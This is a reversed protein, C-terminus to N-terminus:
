QHRLADILARVFLPDEEGIPNNNQAFILLGNEDVLEVSVFVFGFDNGGASFRM